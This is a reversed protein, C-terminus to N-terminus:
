FTLNLLGGNLYGERYQRPLHAAGGFSWCDEWIQAPPNSNGIRKFQFRVYFRAKKDFFCKLRKKKIDGIIHHLISRRSFGHKNFSM